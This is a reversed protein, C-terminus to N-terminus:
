LPYFIPETDPPRLNCHMRLQWTKWHTRNLLLNDTCNWKGTELICLVPIGLAYVRIYAINVCTSSPAATQTIDHMYGAIKAKIVIM